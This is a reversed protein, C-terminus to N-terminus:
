SYADNSKSNIIQYPIIYHSASKPTHTHTPFRSITSWFLRTDFHETKISLGFRPGFHYESNPVSNPSLTLPPLLTFLKKKKLSWFLM